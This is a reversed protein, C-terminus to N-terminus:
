RFGDTEEQGIVWQVIQKCDKETLKFNNSTVENVVRIVSTIGMPNSVDISFRRDADMDQAVISISGDGNLFVTYRFDNRNKLCGALHTGIFNYIKRFNEICKESPIVQPYNNEIADKIDEQIQNEWDKLNVETM